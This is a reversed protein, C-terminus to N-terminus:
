VALNVPASLWKGPLGRSVYGFKVVCVCHVEFRQDFGAAVSSRRPEPSGDGDVRAFDVNVCANEPWVVM